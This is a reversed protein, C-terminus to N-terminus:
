CSPQGWDFVQSCLLVKAQCLGPLWGEGGSGADAM